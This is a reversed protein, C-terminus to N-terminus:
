NLETAYILRIQVVNGCLLKVSIRKKDSLCVYDFCSAPGFVFLVFGFFIINFFFIIM